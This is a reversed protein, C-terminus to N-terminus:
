QSSSRLVLVSDSEGFPSTLTVRKGGEINEGRQRSQQNPDFWRVEVSGACQSLDVTM